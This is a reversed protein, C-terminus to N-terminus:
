SESEEAFVVVRRDRGCDFHFHRSHGQAAPGLVCRFIDARAILARMLRRLFTSHLGAVGPQPRWHRGVTVSFANGFVPHVGPPLLSEELPPYSFGTVDLANGFAHESFLEPHGRMRRCVLSGIHQLRTPPRGYVAQGVECAVQEFRM